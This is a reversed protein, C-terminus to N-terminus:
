NSISANAQLLNSNGSNGRVTDILRLWRPMISSWDYQAVTERGAQQLREALNADTLLRKVCAAMADANDPAVLLANKEHELMHPIGGVNTSVVCTGSALAELVSVPTNDVLSTNLFIDGTDFVDPVDSKQVAGNCSICDLVNLRRAEAITDQLSGDQKDLGTMTACIDPFESKLASVVRPVTIPSYIKHYARLWVLRPRLPSRTKFHYGSVPLANPLLILDKRYPAMETQLYSSPATVAAASNLLSAVLRPRARAFEPLAGGHLTLIFPKRLSQLLRTAALGLFFASGSFLDVQAVDYDHRRNWVVSLMQQLRALRGPKDSTTVVQCGAQQFRIALEECVQRSYGYKSLFNGVMLIRPTSSHAM